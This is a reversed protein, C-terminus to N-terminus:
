IMASSERLIFLCRFSRGKLGYYLSLLSPPTFALSPKTKESLFWAGMGSADRVGGGPFCHEPRLAFGNPAWNRIGSEMWSSRNEAGPVRQLMM